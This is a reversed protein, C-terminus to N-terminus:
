GGADGNPDGSGGDSSGGGSDGDTGSSPGGSEDSGSASGEGSGSASGEGSGSASGDGSGSASGEGSGDTSGDGGSGDGSAPSTSGSGPGSSETPGRSRHRPGAGEVPDASPAAHTTRDRGARTARPTRDHAGPASRGTATDPLSPATGTPEPRPPPTSLPSPTTSVDEHPRSQAGFIIQHLHGLPGHPGSAAAAAVGGGAVLVTAIAGAVFGNPLRRRAVRLPAAPTAAVLEARWAAFLGGPDDDAVDGAGLMTLVLDDAIVATTEFTDDDSM